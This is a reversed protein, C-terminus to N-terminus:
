TGAEECARCYWQEETNEYDAVHIVYHDWGDDEAQTDAKEQKTDRYNQEKGCGTCHFTFVRVEQETGSM